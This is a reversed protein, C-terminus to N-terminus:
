RRGSREEMVEGVTGREREKNEKERRGEWREELEMERKWVKGGEMKGGEKDESRMEKYEKRGSYM